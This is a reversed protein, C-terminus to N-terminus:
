YGADAKAYKFFKYYFLRSEDSYVFGILDVFMYCYKLWVRPQFSDIREDLPGGKTNYRISYIHIYFKQGQTGPLRAVSLDGLWFKCIIM